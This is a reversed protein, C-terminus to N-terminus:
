PCASVSDHLLIKRASKYCYCPCVAPVNGKHTSGNEEDEKFINDFDSLEELVEDMATKLVRFIEAKDKWAM